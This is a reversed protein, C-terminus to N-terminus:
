FLCDDHKPGHGSCYGNKRCQRRDINLQHREWRLHAPNFCSETPCLHSAEWKKGRMEGSFFALSLRHVGLPSLSKIIKVTRYGKVSGNKRPRAIWEYGINGGMEIVNMADFKAKDTAGTIMLQHMKSVVLQFPMGVWNFKESIQVETLEQIESIMKEQQALEIDITISKWFAIKDDRSLEIFLARM